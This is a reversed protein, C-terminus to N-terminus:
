RLVEKELGYVGIFALLHEELRDAEARMVHPNIGYLDGMDVYAGRGYNPIVEGYLTYWLLFVMAYEGFPSLKTHKADRYLWDPHFNEILYKELEHWNVVIAQSDDYFGQRPEILIVVPIFGNELIMQSYSESYVGWYVVLHYDYSEFSQWSKIKKLFDDTLRIDKGYDNYDDLRAYQNNDRVSEIYSIFRTGSYSFRDGPFIHMQGKQKKDLVIPSQTGGSNTSSAKTTTPTVVAGKTECFSLAMEGFAEATVYHRDAELVVTENNTGGVTVTARYVQAMGDAAKYEMLKVRVRNQYTFEQLTSAGSALSTASKHLIRGVNSGHKTLVVYNTQKLEQEWSSPMRCTWYASNPKLLLQRLTLVSATDPHPNFMAATESDLFFANAFVTTTSQTTKVTTTAVTATTTPTIKVATTTPTKTTAKTTKKTAPKVTTTTTVETTTVAEETTTTVPASPETCATMCLLIVVALVTALGKKM